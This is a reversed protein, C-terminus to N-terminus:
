QTRIDKKQAVAVPAASARRPKWAPGLVHMGRVRKVAVIFYVAGFIPWWRAGARDMWTYRQLWRESRVAPRYCGFHQQEMELDLLRLWDRLRWPGIFDGTEPLFLPGPRAGLWAACYAQQQRLGWLSAPNFGSLVVRGEPVLVREVERLVAHPDASFELTHPLVVLDLSNSAFPLAAAHTVLSVSPATADSQALSDASLAEVSSLTEPMALWRHPMRNSRLTDLAPLGLQLAHYGFRDVVANDFQEREWALLYQGPPTAFWASLEQGAEQRDNM